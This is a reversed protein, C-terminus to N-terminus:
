FDLRRYKAKAQARTRFNFHWWESKLPKWGGAIMVRRLLKRNALHEKTIIGKSVLMNENDINAEYGLHDVKTGMPLEHGTSDSITIDVALGYNHLGGGNVPNSVYKAKPTGKVIQYMIRQVSMPRAADCVKLTLEPYSKKLEKQAIVLAAAAQPHLYAKTLSTYMKRGAFNDDRGYMLDVIINNDIASVDVFGLSEFISGLDTAAVDCGSISNISLALIFAFIQKM